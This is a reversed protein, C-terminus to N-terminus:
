KKAAPKPEISALLTFFAGADAKDGVYDASTLDGPVICAIWMQRADKRSYFMWCRGKKGAVELDREGLPLYGRGELTLEQEQGFLDYSFPYTKAFHVPLFNAIPGSKWPLEAMRAVSMGEGHSMAYWGSPVAVRWSRYTVARGHAMHWAAAVVEPLLIAAILLIALVVLVGIRPRGKPKM